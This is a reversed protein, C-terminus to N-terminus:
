VSKKKSSDKAQSRSRGRSRKSKKKSSSRSKKKTKSSSKRKKRTSSRSSKKKKRTSSRSSKEKKRTSSRSSKKKKRTSSRSKRKEKSSRSSKRKKRKSSPSSSSKKKSSRKRKGLPSSSRSSKPVCKKRNRKGSCKLGHPKKFDKCQSSSTCRGGEAVHQSGKSGADKSKMCYKTNTVKGGRKKKARCVLGQGKKCQKTRLCPGGSRVSYNEATRAAEENEKKKAAKAKQYGSYAQMGMKMAGTLAAMGAAIGKSTDDMDKNQMIQTIQGATATGSSAVDGVTGAIAKDSEKKAFTNAMGKVQEAAIGAAAIAQTEKTKATM